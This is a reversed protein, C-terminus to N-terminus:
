EERTSLIEEVRWRKEKSMPRTEVIRVLNGVKCQNKEDHVKFKKSRRVAKGYMPHKFQREVRVVVTKDMKDGVVQGVRTKRYNREM